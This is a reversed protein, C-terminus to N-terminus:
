DKFDATALEYALESSYRSSRNRGNRKAWYLAEDARQYLHERGGAAKLDCVGASLTLTGVEAFPTASIAQRARETAAIADLGDSNLIWAFEEGGVRALLEGDRAVASLRHAAECLVRDGTPHGYRDNIEKFHDLDLVAVSLPHGHRTARAVDSRLREHLVRYNALGTLPDHTALRQLEAEIRKRESIDRVTSVYGLPEGDISRAAVATISADFRTGDKRVYKAEFEHGQEGQILKRQRAIEPVAEPAWFPYPVGVGLLEERSFGTLECLAQNVELIAGDRTLMFGERMSGTIAAAYDRERRASREAQRLETVDQVTGAYCGPRDPDRRGLAHLTLTVGTGLVVRYDLEFSGADGFMQAYGAGVQERDDPHLYAFFEEGTAPGQARDRGFIRYMELSWTAKDTAIEWSWSGVHAIRQAEDLALREREFAQAAGQLEHERASLGAAMDNFARGLERLEARGGIPAHVDREGAALRTCAAIMRRLPLVIRRAVLGIFLLIALAIVLGAGAGVVILKRDTAASKRDRGAQLTQEAAYFRAFRERIADLLTKGRATFAILAKGRLPRPRAVFPVTYGNIYSTVASQLAAARLEQGRDDALQRLRALDGPLSARAQSWPGLFRRQGTASYGRVGTELEVVNREVLESSSLVLGSHEGLGDARQHDRVATTFTMVVIAVLAIIVAGAFLVRMM